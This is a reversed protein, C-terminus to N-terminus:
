GRCGVGGRTDLSSGPLEAVWNGERRGSNRSGVGLGDLSSAGRGSKRGGSESAAVPYLPDLAM